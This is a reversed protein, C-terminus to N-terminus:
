GGREQPRRRAPARARRAAGAAPRQRRLPPHQPQRRERTTRRRPVVRAFGDIDAFARYAAVIKEITSPCCTTRHGDPRSSPTPTSSCCRAKRARRAELGTRAPRPHLGPHRHRLLPEARPRHRGRAPRRRHHRTRIKGEAGGRFLVGHPMVTVVMGGPRLVALMHQVFM